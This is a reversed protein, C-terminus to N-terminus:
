LKYDYPQSPKQQVLYLVEYDAKMFAITRLVIRWRPKVPSLKSLYPRQTGVHFSVFIVVCMCSEKQMPCNHIQGPGASSHSLAPVEM